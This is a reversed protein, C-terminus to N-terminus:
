TMIKYNEGCLDFIKVDENSIIEQAANTIPWSDWSDGVKIEKSQTLAQLVDGLLILM